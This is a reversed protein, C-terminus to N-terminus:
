SEHRGFTVGFIRKIELTEDSHRFSMHGQPRVGGATGGAINKKLSLQQFTYTSIVTYAGIPLRIGTNDKEWQVRNGTLLLPAPNHAVM